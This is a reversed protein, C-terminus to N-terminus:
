IRKDKNTAYKGLKHKREYSNMFDKAWQLNDLDKETLLIRSEKLLEINYYYM